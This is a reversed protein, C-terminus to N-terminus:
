GGGLGGGGGGGGERRKKLDFGGHTQVLLAVVHSAGEERESPPWVVGRTLREQAHGQARDILYRLVCM